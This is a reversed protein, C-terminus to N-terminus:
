YNTSGTFSMDLYIFLFFSVLLLYLNVGYLVKRMMLFIFAYSYEDYPSPTM